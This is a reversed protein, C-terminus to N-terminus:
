FDKGKGSRAHFKVIKVNEGNGNEGDNAMPVDNVDQEVKPEPVPVQPPSQQQQLPKPQQQPTGPQVPAQQGVQTFGGSM